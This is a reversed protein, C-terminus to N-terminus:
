GVMLALAICIIALLAGGGILAIQGANIASPQAAVGEEYLRRAELIADWHTNSNGDMSNFMGPPM